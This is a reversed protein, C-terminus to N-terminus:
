ALQDHFRPAGPVRVRSAGGIREVAHLEAAVASRRAELLSVVEALRQQLAAARPALAVPLPEVPRAPLAPPGGRPLGSGNGDPVAPGDAASADAAWREHAALVSELCDLHTAWAESV